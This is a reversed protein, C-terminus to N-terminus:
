ADKPGSRQDVELYRLPLGIGPRIPNFRACNIHHKPAGVNSAPLIGFPSWRQVSWKIPWLIAPRSYHIGLFADDITCGGRDNSGIRIYRFAVSDM